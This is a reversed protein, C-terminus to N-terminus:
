APHAALAGITSTGQRLFGSEAERLQTFDVQGDSRLMDQQLNRLQPQAAHPQSHSRHRIPHLLCVSGQADPILETGKGQNRHAIRCLFARLLIPKILSPNM